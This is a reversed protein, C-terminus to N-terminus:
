RMLCTERRKLRKRKKSFVLCEWSMPEQWHMKHGRHPMLHALGLRIAIQQVPCILRQKEISIFLNTCKFFLFYHKRHTWSANFRDNFRINFRVNYWFYKGFGNNYKPCFICNSVYLAMYHPWFNYVNKTFLCKEGNSFWAFPFINSVSRFYTQLVQYCEKERTVGYFTLTFCLEFIVCHNYFLLLMFRIRHWLTVYLFRANNPPWVIHIVSM